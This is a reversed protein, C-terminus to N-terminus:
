AAQEVARFVDRASPQVMERHVRGDRMVLVRDTKSAAEPDHTVMVVARESTVTERLLRIVEAGAVADLAGTPEDAFLVSPRAVLARAIATRQQQGGSLTGPHASGYSELGVSRLSEDIEARPVRRGALRAQIEVNERVSLSPLLNYAQFVFGVHDRRLRATRSRSLTALDSGALRVSGSTVPELGALCYLLTSKGSGSPGVVSVFEGARVRISVDHLVEVSSGGNAARYSKRLNEAVVLM